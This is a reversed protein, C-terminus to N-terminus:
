IMMIEMFFFPFIILGPLAVKTAPVKIITKRKNPSLIRFRKPISTCDKAMAPAIIMKKIAMSITKPIVKYLSSLLLAEKVAATKGKAKGNIAPGPLKVVKSEKRASNAMSFIITATIKFTIKKYITKFVDELISRKIPGVPMCIILFTNPTIRNAIATFNNACLM